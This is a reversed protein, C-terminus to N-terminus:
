STELAARVQQILKDRADSTCSAEYIAEATSDFTNDKAASQVTSIDRALSFEKMHAPDGADQLDFYRDDHRNKAGELYAFEMSSLGIGREVHEYIAALEPEVPSVIELAFKCAALAARRQASLPARRLEDALIKSFSQIRLV